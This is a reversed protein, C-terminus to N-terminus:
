DLLVGNDFEDVAGNQITVGQHTELRIGADPDTTGPTADGDITHGNLDLTVNDAGIVLGDGPCNSLDAHISSDASITDGCRM